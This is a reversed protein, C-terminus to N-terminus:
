LVSHGPTIPTISGIEITGSNPRGRFDFRQASGSNNVVGEGADSVTPDAGTVGKMTFGYGAPITYDDGGVQQWGLYDDGTPYYFFWYSPLSLPEPDPTASADGVSSEFGGILKVPSSYTKDVPTFLTSSPGFTANGDALTVGSSNVAVSVPSTWNNYDWQNTTGEQYVSLLGDGKNLQDGGDGQILQAERRLYISAETLTDNVNKTLNVDEKVYLIEDIVYIFTDDGTNTPKVSLQALSAGSILISLITIICKM